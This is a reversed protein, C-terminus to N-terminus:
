NSLAKVSVLTATIWFWENRYFPKNKYQTVTITREKEEIPFPKWYIEFDNRPPFNYTVKLHGENLSTDVEAKAQKDYMLFLHTKYLGLLYSLSDVTTQISNPIYPIKKEYYKINPSLTAKLSDINIQQQERVVIKTEKIITNEFYAKGTFVGSGFVVLFLLLASLINKYNM